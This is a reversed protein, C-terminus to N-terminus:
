KRARICLFVPQRSLEAYHKPDAAKFEGTPQPELTRELRFGAEVLPNILADLPRRYSTMQVRVSEFGRWECGVLETAFYNESKFYLYDFLPHAVSFVFHGSPRLIRHFEAFAARWDEVYDLVLASLVIDFSASELFDLPKGLDAQRVDAAAGLRRRALEVMKPSADVAVVEAGHELLWESYVGPGCGADLVRRGRTEPLLSLTAPREYFANHPKTDVVAAYAEALAEYADFAIPKDSM